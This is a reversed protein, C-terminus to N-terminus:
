LKQVLANETLNQRRASGAELATSIDAHRALNESM